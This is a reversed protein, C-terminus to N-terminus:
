ASPPTARLIERRRPGSEKRRVLADLYDRNGDFMFLSDGPARDSGAQALIERAREQLFEPPKDLPVMGVLSTIPALAFLGALAALFVGLAGWALAPSVAGSDGAEAVMEPSPTEGAALA